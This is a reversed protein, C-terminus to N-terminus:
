KETGTNWGPSPAFRFSSPMKELLPKGKEVVYTALESAITKGINKASHPTGAPIFLVGGRKLTVSARGEVQYELMGELIYIIEEGPHKHVPAIANIGFDVRVQIMEWGATSLDHRQLDTRKTEGNEPGGQAVATTRFLTLVGVIMGLFINTYKKM